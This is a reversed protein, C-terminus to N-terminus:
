VADLLPIGLILTKVAVGVSSPTGKLVGRLLSPGTFVAFVGLYILSGLLLVHFLYLGLLTVVVVSWGGVVLWGGYGLKGEVEFKSLTTISFVYILSILPFLIVPSAYSIAPSMGLILNCARCAGMNLPGIIQTQKTLGDYLITLLVLVLAIYFSLSGASLAGLLGIGYLIFALFSAAAVSVKGSPIPRFPREVADVKRDCLDNLVCGGAYIGSTSILLGLLQPWEISTGLVILYGALVDAMATFVNPFRMLQLYVLLKAKANM